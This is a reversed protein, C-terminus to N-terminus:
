ITLFIILWAIAWLCKAVDVKWEITVKKDTKRAM